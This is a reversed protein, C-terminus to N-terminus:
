KSLYERLHTIADNSGIMVIRDGREIEFDARPSIELNGGRNVAIVQVGFRNPLRLESLKGCLTAEAEIEVVGHNEGLKFADVISPTALQRALRVGMDHEPRVVEDAGVRDLVRAALLSVGKSIVRRAGASKAAVTALINAELNDGIAVVVADFNGCGLKRLTDEDTGDVIATHTVQNMIAEIAGEDKDIVVVEHGLQYLTTALASGFRGAGIVMFQREKM